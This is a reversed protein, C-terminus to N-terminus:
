IKIDSVKDFAIISYEELADRFNPYARTDSSGYELVPAYGRHGKPNSRVNSEVIASSINGKKSTTTRDRLNEVLTGTDINDRGRINSEVALKMQPALKTVAADVDSFWKDAIGDFDIKKTVEISVRAM